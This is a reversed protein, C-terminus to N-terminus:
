IFNVEPSLSVGFKEKIDKQIEVSLAQIDQGDGGGYNVLVLPQQRHVGIKGFTRGKWGAKELLFAAPIKVGKENEYGPIDPYAKKLRLFHKKEIVPNKFFSGANGITKPDPLKSQRIHIVAKSIDELTVEGIKMEQLTEQLAGYSINFQAQKNLRFTVHTIIYKGKARQKFISDRYEFECDRHRFRVTERTHIDIAELWDFVGKIEVGYAGINQMPSAGVTGPILSLNEIGSWNAAIAKLVFEHWIEGAGVKVWVHQEDEKLLQIGKIDIKIVLANVDRTLLINSGGGLILVPVDLKEAEYLAQIVELSTSVQVFYKAIKNIGFTNYGKLSVNKQINM